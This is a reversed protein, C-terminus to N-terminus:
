GTGATISNIKQKIEHMFVFAQDSKSRYNYNKKSIIFTGLTSDFSLIKDKLILNRVCTASRFFLKFVILETASSTLFETLSLRTICVIRENPFANFWPVALPDATPNLNSLRRLSM